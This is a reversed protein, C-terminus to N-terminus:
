YEASALRLIHLSTAVPKFGIGVYCRNSYANRPDTDLCATEKAESYIREVVAATVSGAYGRGRHPPPTYVGGIAAMSRTRRIIGAMSVPRGDNVWFCFNGDRASWELKERDPPPKHPLAELRFETMWDAFIPADEATVTRAHGLAGPYRPPGSIAYIRQPIPEAFALGFAAARSAVWQATLGPGVMGPYDLDTTVEALRGCEAEDLDGILIPMGPTKVACRGPAGFTWMALNPLEGAAARALIALILNHRVADAELAPQHYAAFQKPDM